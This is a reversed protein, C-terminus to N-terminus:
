RSQAALARQRPSHYHAVVFNDFIRAITRGHCPVTAQADVHTFATTRLAIQKDTAALGPTLRVFGGVVLDVVDHQTTWGSRQRDFKRIARMDVHDIRHM